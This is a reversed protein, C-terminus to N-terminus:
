LEFTPPGARQATAHWQDRRAKWQEFAVVRKPDAAFRLRGAGPSADKKSEVTSVEKFPDEWDTELWGELAGPPAPPSSLRPRAIKLVFNPDRSQDGSGDAYAPNPPETLAPNGRRVSSHDPLDKLWLTWPQEDLHRKVPNRHENLAELYRFVRLLRDRGTRITESDM